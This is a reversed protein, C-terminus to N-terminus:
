SSEDFLLKVAAFDHCNPHNENLVIWRSAGSIALQETSMGFM